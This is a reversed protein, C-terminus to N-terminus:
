TGNVMRISIRVRQNKFQWLKGLVCPKGTVLGILAPKFNDTAQPIVELEALERDVVLMGHISLVQGNIEDATDPEISLTVPNLGVQRIYSNLRDKLPHKPDALVLYLDRLLYEGGKASDLGLHGQTVLVREGFTHTPTCASLGYSQSAKAGASVTALLLSVAMLIRWM